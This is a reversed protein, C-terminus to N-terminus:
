SYAHNSENRVGSQWWIHCAGEDSVMCPGIPRSPVCVKEYLPCDNPRTKGMVVETCACGAPMQGMRKRSVMELTSRPRIDFDRYPERLAYGSNAVHGMGRWPTEVIEFVEDLVRKAKENGKETVVQPYINKFQPEYKNHNSVLAEIAHLIQEPTFGAVVTNIGFKNSAARWEDCGMITAVHGPAIISEFRHQGEQLLAEVIPWTRRGSLLMKVNEPLGQAVLAAVPAMTTEFGVAFFVIEAEPHKAAYDLVEMPSAIAHANGGLSRAEALSRPEGKPANCPVRMMDGFTLVRTHAQLALQVALFIDEEPCVCVPCGPGPILDVYPQLPKRIGSFSITREHGGCVNLITLPKKTADRKLKTLLSSLTNM